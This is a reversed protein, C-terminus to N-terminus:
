DPGRSDCDVPTDQCRIEELEGLSTDCEDLASRLARRLVEEHTPHYFPTRLLEKLNSEHEIAYAMFHAMHEAAHSVFAAGLLRASKIEAYVCVAGTRYRELRARGANTFSAHGSALEDAREDSLEEWGSGAVAIQPETFVIRLPVRRQFTAAKGRVACWGAIRGEDSAEHLLASGGSVDGAFYVPVGPQDLRGDQLVPRGKKGFKVGIRDLKLDSLDVTRGIALLVRDVTIEGDPWHLRLAGGPDQSPEAAANVIRMERQMADRLVPELEPDALGGLSPSPDFGTVEVGLRAMAQGLELGVPGLGVVAMRRPLDTMEFFSNSTVVRDGFGQWPKPVLPRTGTAIVTARPRFIEGGAVFTGDQQFEPVHAVLHTGRWSEMGDLVGQVLSDRLARTEALVASIDAELAEGGRIGLNGFSHRRHYDHASQLFAKSPMCAARACTTGYPGPDFVRYNQTVKAVEARASLGATGAGFIAVDLETTTM